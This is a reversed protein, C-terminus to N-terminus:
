EELAKYILEKVEKQIPDPLTGIRTLHSGEPAVARFTKKLKPNNLSTSGWPDNEGIIAIMEPDHLELNGMLNKMTPKFSLTDGGPAFMSSSITDNSFGDLLEKLDGPVYAYYGLEKYAQYFFPKIDHWSQDSVYAIDSSQSLHQFLKEDSADASPINSTQSGWQWFSFPYELVVLDFAKDYGMRFTYGKQESYEKFLPMLETRKELVLKQFNYIKGRDSENGVQKFFDFLRKDERELNFPAVYPVSLDVDDPFLARHFIATQGGKSVGTTIWKNPYLEKFLQVILHHDNAAQEVTLYQWDISDPTSQAFYRHEVIIQNAGTIRALESTYNKNASYGETVMIVPAETSKHSLWVRQKFSGKEPHKHDIPQEIWILWAKDFTTTDSAIAEASLCDTQAIFEDPTNFKRNCANLFLIFAALYIINIKM